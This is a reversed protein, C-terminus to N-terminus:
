RRCGAGIGDEAVDAVGILAGLDVGVVDRRGVRAHDAVVRDEVEASVDAPVAVVVVRAAIREGIQPRRVQLVEDM